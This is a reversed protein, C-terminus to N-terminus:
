AKVRQRDALMSEYVGCCWQVHDRFGGEVPFAGVDPVPERAAELTSSSLVRQYWDDQEAVSQITAPKVPTWQLVGPEFALGLAALVGRAVPEPRSRLETADVIRYPVGRVRCWSIQDALHKWGSENHPFTAPLGQKRRRAMRSAICLRPDRVNFIVPRTTRAALDPFAAGVQFTMEKIAFGNGGPPKGDVTHALDAPHSLAEDAASPAAGDHYTAGYPEHAYWRVASHHWLTRALATSASRPPAVIVYTHPRRDSM